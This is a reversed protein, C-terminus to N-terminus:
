SYGIKQGSFYPEVELESFVTTRNIHLHCLIVTNFFQSQKEKM